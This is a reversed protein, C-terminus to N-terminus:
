RSIDYRVMLRWAREAGCFAKIEDTEDRLLEVAGNLQWLDDTDIDVFLLGAKPYV